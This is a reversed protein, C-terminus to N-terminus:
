KKKSMTKPKPKLGFGYKRLTKRGVTSRLKKIYANAGAGDGGSRRVVCAQYRVPPQAWRPLAISKIRSTNAKADTYYVFGADASGLGIKGVVQSVNSENSVTNNKLISSLQMRALLKRTYNGIPVNPNGISLRKGGAKLDYVSNISSGKQVALVLKNTAFTVPNTCRGEKYLTQPEYPSASAFVDAPAGKEIQAQLTNSGGFSYQASSDLEQLVNTLSSAAYVTVAQAASVPALVLAGAILPALYFRKM